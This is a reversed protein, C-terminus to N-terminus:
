LGDTIQGTTRESHCECGFDPLQRGRHSDSFFLDGAGGRVGNAINWLSLMPLPAHAVQDFVTVRLNM